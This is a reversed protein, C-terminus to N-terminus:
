SIQLDYMEGKNDQCVGIGKLNWDSFNFTCRLTTGDAATALVSGGGGTPLGVFTGTATAVQTGSVATATGLGVSGGTEMYAWQGQFVKGGLSITIPGGRKGNAPVTATGVVGTQRDVLYFAHTSVCGSLAVCSLLVLIALRM